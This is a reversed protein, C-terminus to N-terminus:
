FPNPVRIAVNDFVGVVGSGSGTGKVGTSVRHPPRRAPAPRHGHGLGRGQRQDHRDAHDDATGYDFARLLLDNRKGVGASSSARAPASCRGPRPRARRTASSSGARRRRPRRPARLRRERESACASAWTPRRRCSRRAHERRPQRHGRDRHRAGRRQLRGVVSSRFRAPTPARASPSRGDDEEPAVEEQVQRGAGEPLRARRGPTQSRTSPSRSPGGRPRRRRRGLRARRAVILATLKTRM